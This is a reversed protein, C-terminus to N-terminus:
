GRRAQRPKVPRGDGANSRLRLSPPPCISTPLLAPFMISASGMSLFTISQDLDETLSTSGWGFRELVARSFCMGSGRLAPSMGLKAMGPHQWLHKLDISIATLRTLWTRDSDAVRYRGQVVQAGRELAQGMHTLFDPAMETDADVLVVGTVKKDSLIKELGYQLAYGKGRREIDNRVLCAAGAKEALAATGDTCNDAVVTVSYAEPPYRSAAISRVTTSILQAEEHAPILVALFPPTTSLPRPSAKETFVLRSLGALLLLFALWGTMLTLIAVLPFLLLSTM